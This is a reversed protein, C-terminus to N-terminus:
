ESHCKRNARFSHAPLPARQCPDRSARLSGVGDPNMKEVYIQYSGSVPYASVRGEVLVNMGDEPKFDLYRANGNFMVANIRSTEDKLTFYLHGTTHNKFNSIEGKLYVKNLYSDRDIVTKIYQNLNAVSIYEIDM